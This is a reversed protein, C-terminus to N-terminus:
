TSFSKSRRLYSNNFWIVLFEEKEFTNMVPTYIKWYSQIEQWGWGGWQGKEKGYLRIDQGVWPLLTVCFPFYVGV